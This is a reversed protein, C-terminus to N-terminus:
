AATLVRRDVGHISDERRQGELLALEDGLADRINKLYELRARARRWAAEAQDMVERLADCEAQMTRTAAQAGFWRRESDGDRSASRVSWEPHNEIAWNDFVTTHYAAPAIGRRQLAHVMEGVIDRERAAAHVAGVPAPWYNLGIHSKCYFLVGSVEAGAFADAIAETDYDALFGPEWDPIHMDLLMRRYGGRGARELVESVLLRGVRRGRYEPVVFLRKMECAGEGLDRMAVCGAPLVGDLALLLAGQPPAYRGPLAALEAEFGQFCLQEAISDAFEAAYARFLDRAQGLAEEGEAVVVRLAAGDVNM